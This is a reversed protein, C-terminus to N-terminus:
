GECASGDNDRDLRHIDGAGQQICYDFCAQASSHNSFDTCNLTDGSCSCVANGGSARTSTPFIFVFTATPAKTPLDFVFTAPPQLTDIVALTAPLTLTPLFTSTVNATPSSALQTQILAADSTQQIILVLNPTSPASSGDYCGLEKLRQDAAQMYGIGWKYQPTGPEQSKLNTEAQDFETQLATCDTLSLIRQYVELKGGHEAFFEAATKLQPASSGCALTALALAIIAFSIKKM